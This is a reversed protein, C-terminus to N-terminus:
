GLDWREALEDTLETLEIQIIRPGGGPPRGRNKVRYFIRPDGYDSSGFHLVDEDDFLNLKEKLEGITIGRDEVIEQKRKQLQDLEM